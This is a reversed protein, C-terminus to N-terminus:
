YRLGAPSDCFSADDFNEQNARWRYIGGASTGETHGVPMACHGNSSGAWVSGGRDYEDLFYNIRFTILSCGPVLMAM